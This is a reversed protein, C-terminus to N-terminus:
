VIRISEGQAMTLDSALFWLPKASAVTKESTHARVRWVKATVYALLRLFLDQAAMKSTVSYIGKM